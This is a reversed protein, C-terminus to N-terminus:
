CKRPATRSLTIWLYLFTRLLDVNKLLALTQAYTISLQLVEQACIVMKLHMTAITESDLTIEM